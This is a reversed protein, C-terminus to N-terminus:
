VPAAGRQGHRVVPVRVRQSNGSPLPPPTDPSPRCLRLLGRAPLHLPEGGGHPRCVRCVRPLYPMFAICSGEYFCGRTHPSNGCQKLGRCGGSRVAPAICACAGAPVTYVRVASLTLRFPQSNVPLPSASPAGPKRSAQPTSVRGGSMSGAGRSFKRSPLARPLLLPAARLSM